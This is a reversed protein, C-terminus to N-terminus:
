RSIIMSLITATWGEFLLESVYPNRWVLLIFGPLALSLIILLVTAWYTRIVNVLLSTLFTLIILTILDGFSSAVPTAINDASDIKLNRPPRGPNIRFRRSVLVLSSMFASLVVSSFSAGMMASVIMLASEFWTERHPRSVYGLFFSLLGALAGIM